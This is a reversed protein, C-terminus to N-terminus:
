PLCDKMADYLRPCEGSPSEEDWLATLHGWQDVLRKWEPYREVVEGLRGWWEPFAQLLRYCRGFDDPDQPPAPRPGRRAIAVAAHKETLVAFMTLSSIGTDTGLQWELERDGGAEKAAEERLEALWADLHEKKDTIAFSAGTVRAIGTHLLMWGQSRWVNFLAALEDLPVSGRILVGHPHTEVTYSNGTDQPGPLEIPVNIAM